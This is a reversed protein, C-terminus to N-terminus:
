KITQKTRGFHQDPGFKTHGSILFYLEIEAPLKLVKVLWCLYGIMTQNKNQGPCNDAFFRLYSGQGESSIYQTLYHHLMSIVTDPSKSIKFCEDILFNHQVNTKENNIGFLEIKRRMKFYFIGPENVKNPLLINEAFDFSLITYHDLASKM